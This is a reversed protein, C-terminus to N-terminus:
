AYRALLLQAEAQADLVSDGEEFEAESELADSLQSEEKEEGGVGGSIMEKEQGPKLFKRLFIKGREQEREMNKVRAQEPMAFNSVRPKIRTRITMEIRQGLSQLTTRCNSRETHGPGLDQISNLIIKLRYSLTDISSNFREDKEIEEASLKPRPPPTSLSALHAYLHRQGLKPAAVSSGSDIAIDLLQISADLSSYARDGAGRNMMFEERELQKSLKNFSFSEHIPQSLVSPTCLFSAYALRRRFNHLRPRSPISDFIHLLLGPTPAANYLDM